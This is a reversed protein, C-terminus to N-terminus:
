ATARAEAMEQEAADLSAHMEAVRTEAAAVEADADQRRQELRALLDLGQGEIGKIADLAQQRASELARELEGELNSMLRSLGDRWEAEYQSTSRVAPDAANPRTSVMPEDVM